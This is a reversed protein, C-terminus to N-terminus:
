AAPRDAGARRLRLDRIARALERLEWATLKRPRRGTVIRVTTPGPALWLVAVAADAVNRCVRPPRAQARVVYYSPPVLTTSM